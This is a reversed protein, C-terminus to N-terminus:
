WGSIEEELSFQPIGIKRSFPFESALQMCIWILDGFVNISKWQKAIAHHADCM